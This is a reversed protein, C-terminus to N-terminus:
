IFYFSTGLNSIERVDLLGMEKIRELGDCYMYIELFM